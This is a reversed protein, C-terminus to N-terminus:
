ALCPLSDACSLSTSSAEIIVDRFILKNKMAEIYTDSLRNLRKTLESGDIRDVQAGIQKEIRNYVQLVNPNPNVTRQLATPNPNGARDM